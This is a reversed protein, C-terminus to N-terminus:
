GSPDSPDPVPVPRASASPAAPSSTTPPASPDGGLVPLLRRMAGPTTAILVADGLQAALIQSPQGAATVELVPLTRGGVEVTTALVQAGYARLRAGIATSFREALDPVDVGAIHLLQGALADPGEGAHVDVLCVDSRMRGLSALLPDLLEDPDIAAVGATINHEVRGGDIEAPLRAAIPGCDAPGPAPTGPPIALAIALCTGVFAARATM